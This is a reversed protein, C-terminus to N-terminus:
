YGPGAVGEAGPGADSGLQETQWREARSGPTKRGRHGVRINSIM